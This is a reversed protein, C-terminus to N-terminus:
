INKDKMDIEPIDNFAYRIYMMMGLLIFFITILYAEVLAYLIEEGHVVGNYTAINYICYLVIMMLFAIYYLSFHLTNRDRHLNYM